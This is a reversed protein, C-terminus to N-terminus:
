PKLEPNRMTKSIGQFHKFKVGKFEHSKVPSRLFSLAAQLREPTRQFHKFKTPNQFHDQDL